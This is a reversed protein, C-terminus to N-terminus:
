WTWMPPRRERKLLDASLDSSTCSSCRSRLTWRLMCMHLSPTLEHVHYRFPWTLVFCRVSPVLGPVVPRCCFVEERWVHRGQEQEVLVLLTFTSLQRQPPCSSVRYEISHGSSPGRVRLARRLTRSTFRFSLFLSVLCVVSFTDEHLYVVGEPTWWLPGSSSAQCRTPCSGGLTPPSPTRRTVASDVSNGEYLPGRPSRCRSCTTGPQPSGRRSLTQLTYVSSFSDSKCTRGLYASTTKTRSRQVAGSTASITFFCITASGASCAGSLHKILARGIFARILEERQIVQGSCTNLVCRLIIVIPLM